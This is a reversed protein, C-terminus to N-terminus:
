PAKDARPPFITYFINRLLQTFGRKGITAVVTLASLPKDQQKQGM